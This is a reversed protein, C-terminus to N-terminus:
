AMIIGIDTQLSIAAPGLGAPSISIESISSIKAFLNNNM